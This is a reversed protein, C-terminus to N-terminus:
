VTDGDAGGHPDAEAEWVRCGYHTEVVGILVMPTARLLQRGNAGRIDRARSCERRAVGSGLDGARRTSSQSREAGPLGSVRRVGQPSIGRRAALAGGPM